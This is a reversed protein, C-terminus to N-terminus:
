GEGGDPAQQEAVVFERQAMHATEGDEMLVEYVMLEEGDYQEIVDWGQIVGTAGAPYEDCDSTTVIQRNYLNADM